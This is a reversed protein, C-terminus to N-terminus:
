VCKEDCHLYINLLLHLPNHYLQVGLSVKGSKSHAISESWNFDLLTIQIQQGPEVTVFWPSDLTGCGNKEAIHSSLYGLPGKIELPGTCLEKPAFAVAFVNSTFNIYCLSLTGFQLQSECTTSFHYIYM